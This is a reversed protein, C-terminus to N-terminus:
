VKGEEEEKRTEKNKKEICVTHDESNYCPPDAKAYGYISADSEAWYKSV